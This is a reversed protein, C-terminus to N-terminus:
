YIIHLLLYLMKGLLFELVLCRWKKFTIQNILNFLELLTLLLNHLNIIKLKNNFQMMEEKIMTNIKIAILNCQNM